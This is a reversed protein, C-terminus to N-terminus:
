LSLDKCRHSLKVGLLELLPLVFTHLIYISICTQVDTVKNQVVLGDLIQSLLTDFKVQQYHQDKLPKYPM